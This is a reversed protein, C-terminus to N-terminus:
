VTQPPARLGGHSSQPRRRAVHAVTASWAEAHATRVRGIRRTREGLGDLTREVAVVTAAAFVLVIAAVISSLPSFTALHLGDALASREISEQVLLFAASSLALRAVAGLAADPDREPLFSAPSIRGGTLFRTVISVPVLALAGVSLVLVLPVYWTLYRHVGGAPFVSGYIVAHALQACLATAALTRGFRV